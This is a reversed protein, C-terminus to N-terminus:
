FLLEALSIKFAGRNPFEVKFYFESVGKSRLPGMHETADNCFGGVVFLGPKM